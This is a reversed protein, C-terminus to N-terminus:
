LEQRVEPQGPAPTPVDAKKAEEWGEKFDKGAQKIGEAANKAEQAPDFNEIKEGAKQALDGVKQNLKSATEGIKKFNIGGSVLLIEDQALLAVTVNKKTKSLM